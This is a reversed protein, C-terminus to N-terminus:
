KCSCDMGGGGHAKRGVQGVTNGLGALLVHGDVWVLPTHAKVCGGSYQEWATHQLESSPWYEPHTSAWAHTDDIHGFVVITTFGLLEVTKDVCTDESAVTVIADVETWLVWNWLLVTCCVLTGVVTCVVWAGNVSKVSSADISGVDEPLFHTLIITKWSSYICWAFSFVAKVVSSVAGMEGEDVGAGTM